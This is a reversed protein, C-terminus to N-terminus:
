KDEEKVLDIESIKLVYPMPGKHSFTVGVVFDPITYSVIGIRETDLDSCGVLSGGKSLANRNLRVKDGIKFM